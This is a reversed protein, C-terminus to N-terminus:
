INSGGPNVPLAVADTPFTTKAEPTGYVTGYFSSFMNCMHLM